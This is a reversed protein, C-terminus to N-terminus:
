PKAPTERNGTRSPQQNEILEVLDVRMTVSLQNRVQPEVAQRAAAPASPVGPRGPDTRGDGPLRALPPLAAGPTGPPIMGPPVPPEPFTPAAGRQGPRTSRGPPGTRVPAAVKVTQSDITVVRVLMLWPMQTLQNLFTQLSKTSGVFQLEFPITQYMGLAGTQIGLELTDSGTTDAVAVRRIRSIQEINCALLADVLQEVVVLEKTLLHLADPQSPPLV